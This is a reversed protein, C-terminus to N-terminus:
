GVIKLDGATFPRGPKNVFAGTGSEIVTYNVFSEIVQGVKALPQGALVQFVITGHGDLRDGQAIADVTLQQFQHVKGQQDKRTITKAAIVKGRVFSGYLQIGQRKASSAMAGGASVASVSVAQAGCGTLALAILAAAVLNKM